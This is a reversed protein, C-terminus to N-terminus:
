PPSLACTLTAPDCRKGSSSCDVSASAGRLCWRLVSGDCRGPADEPPCPARALPSPCDGCDGWRGREPHQELYEQLTLGRSSLEMALKQGVYRQHWPEHRFGTQREKGAPYSTIFGHAPARERLFAEASDGPYDLDVALGLEHESHGPRAFRGVEPSRAFHTEQEAHSRHAGSVQILLGAATAERLLAELPPQASRELRFRGQVALRGRADITVLHDPSPGACPSLCRSPDVWPIAAPAGPPRSCALGLAILGPCWGITPRIM